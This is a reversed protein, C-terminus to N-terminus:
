TAPALDYECALAEVIKAVTRAAAPLDENQLHTVTWNRGYIIPDCPEVTVGTLEECGWEGVAKSLVLKEL